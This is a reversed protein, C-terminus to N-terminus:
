PQSAVFRCGYILRIAQPRAGPLDVGLRHRVGAAGGSTCAGSTGAGIGAIRVADDYRQEFNEIWYGLTRAYDGALGEVHTTVLGTRELALEIRSCRCRCATPSCSGSRVAEDKTDLDKLKAIGHNLLRGRPALM